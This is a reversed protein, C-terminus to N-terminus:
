RHVDQEVPSDVCPQADVRPRRVASARLQPESLGFQWYPLAYLSHAPLTHHSKLLRRCTRVIDSAGALWFYSDRAPAAYNLQQKIMRLLADNDNIAAVCWHVAIGPPLELLPIDDQSTVRCFVQGQATMPQQLLMAHIAPLATMDGVLWFPRSPPLMPMPGAPLSIAAFAGLEANRAFHQGPGTAYPDIAIDIALKQAAADHQWVSYTRIQTPAAPKSLTKYPAHPEMSPTMAATVDPLEPLEQGRESFLLKVHSAPWYAPMDALSLRDHPLATFTLRLRHPSVWHRHCLQVWRFRPPIVLPFSSNSM